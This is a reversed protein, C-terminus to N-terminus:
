GEGETFRGGGKYPALISHGGGGGGMILYDFQLCGRRLPQLRPSRGWTTPFNEGEFWAILPYSFWNPGTWNAPYTPRGEGRRSCSEELAKSEGGMERKFEAFHPKPAM